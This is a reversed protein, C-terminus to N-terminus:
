AKEAGYHRGKWGGGRGTWHRRASDVTMLTYFAAAVPLLTARWRGLGYLRLTPMYAICMLSLATAGVGLLRPDGVAAGLVIAGPPVLYIAVMGLLTGALMFISRDLQVYATRAVMRWIEGLGDYARLSVVSRTLGLWVKGGSNKVRRALACDDILRDRIDGVGGIADLRRRSVLMCGGAAAAVGSAPDAVAPFPYLKQFFFVFAPILLREWASECRLLAMLSVLDFGEREAKAVLRRLSSRDHEIDADTLLVFKADPMAARAAELGHHVAWLKGTWGPPLTEGQVVFLRNAAGEEVAAARAVDATGDTSGDDVLFVAIPGPYDQALLAGVVRGVTPAEDRAPIVVAVAPWTGLDPPSAPLRRDAKWFGARMTILWAWVAFSAVALALWWGSMRAAVVGGRCGARLM